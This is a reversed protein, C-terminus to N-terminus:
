QVRARDDRERRKALNEMMEDDTSKPKKIIKQNLYGEFKNGFLTEPRLFKEMDTGKWEDAKKDIVTIFNEVTFKEKLRVRILTQTKKTKYKYLTGLKINLYKVIEKIDKIENENIDEMLKASAGLANKRRSETFVRRQKMVEKLKENYYKGNGDSVLKEQLSPTFGSAGCISLVQEKTLSGKDAQHCLIRIYKGVDAESMFQTGMIFDQYYFLFAPDKKAMKELKRM